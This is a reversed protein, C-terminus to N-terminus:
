FFLGFFTLFMVFVPTYTVAGATFLMEQTCGEKAGTGYDDNEVPDFPPSDGDLAQSYNYSEEDAFEPEKTIQNAAQFPAPALIGGGGQLAGVRITVKSERNSFNNNRPSFLTITGPPHGNLTIEEPSFYPSIANGEGCNRPHNERRNENNIDDIEEGTLPTLARPVLKPYVGNGTTMQLQTDCKAYAFARAQADNSFIGVNNPQKVGLLAGTGTNELDPYNRMNDSTYTLTMRDM